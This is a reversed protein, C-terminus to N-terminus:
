LLPEHKRIGGGVVVCAYDKGTLAEVIAGEANEPAATVPVRGLETGNARCQGLHPGLQVATDDRAAVRRQCPQAGRM